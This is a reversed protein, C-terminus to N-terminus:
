RASCSTEEFQRSFKVAVCGFVWARGRTRVATNISIIRDSLSADTTSFLRTDGTRTQSSGGFFVGWGPMAPPTNEQGSPQNQRSVSSGAVVLSGFLGQEMSELAKRKNSMDVHQYIGTAQLTSQRLVAQIDRDHVGNNKMGTANSHRLGHPTIRSLGVRERIRHFSREINRPDVPRGNRTTFVLETDTGTGQWTKGSSACAVVQAAQEERRELLVQRATALLPEDGESSDTKLEVQRLTRNICQVQQRIRLVNHTFDVDCWRIGAVEGKRLGYLALLVFAPYFPDGKAADLFTITEEFSWHRAEKPRYRPLEVLRAVNRFLLEQRMAYTLAASLVKRVQHITAPPKGDALLRDLFNQVSQVSLQDLRYHGLGPKLHLRVISEHRHYTLPRRKARTLWHDLYDGLRWSREPAPVGRQAQAKAEILKAHVEKRTKGYMRRRKRIGSATTVWLAAEYRGDKRLYISGEGGGNRGAM